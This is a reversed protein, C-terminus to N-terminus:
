AYSSLSVVPSTCHSSHVLEQCCTTQGHHSQIHSEPCRSPQTFHSRCHGALITLHSQHSCCGIILLTSSNNVAPPNVRLTPAGEEEYDEPNQPRQVYQEVHVDTNQQREVVMLTLPSFSQIGVADAWRMFTTSRTTTRMVKAVLVELCRPTSISLFEAKM